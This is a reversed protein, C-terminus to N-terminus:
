GVEELTHRNRDVTHYDQEELSFFFTTVFLHRFKACYIYIYVYVRLQEKGREEM